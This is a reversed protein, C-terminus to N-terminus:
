LININKYVALTEKTVEEWNYKSYVYEAVKDKLDNVLDANHISDNLKELLDEVDNTRFSLGYGGIVDVNEASRFLM